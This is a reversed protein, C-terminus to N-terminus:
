SIRRHACLWINTLDIHTNIHISTRISTHTYISVLSHREQLYTKLTDSVWTSMQQCGERWKQNDEQLQNYLGTYATIMQDSVELSDTLITQLESTETLLDCLGSYETKDRDKEQIRICVLTHVCAHIYVCTHPYMCAYVCFHTSVQMYICVVTHICAHMYVCTRPYM